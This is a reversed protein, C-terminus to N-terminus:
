ADSYESTEARFDFASGKVYKSDLEQFASRRQVQGEAAKKLHRPRIKTEDDEEDAAMSRAVHIADRIDRGSLDFRGALEPLLNEIDERIEDTTPLVGMELFNQWCKLRAKEDLKPFSIVDTARSRIGKDLDSAGNTTM